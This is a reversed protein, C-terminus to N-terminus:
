IIFSYIFLCIFCPSWNRVSTLDTRSSDPASVRPDLPKKSSSAPAKQNAPSDGAGCMVMSLLLCKRCRTVYVDNLIRTSIISCVLIWESLERVAFLQVNHFFTDFWLIVFSYSYHEYSMMWRCVVYFSALTITSIKRTRVLTQSPMWGTRVTAM